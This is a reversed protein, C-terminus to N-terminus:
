SILALMMGPNYVTDQSSLTLQRDGSQSNEIVKAGSLKAWVYLSVQLRTASRVAAFLVPEELWRGSLLMGVELWLAACMVPVCLSSTSSVTNYDSM